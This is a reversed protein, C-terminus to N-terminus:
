KQYQIKIQIPNNSSIQGNLVMAVVQGTVPFVIIRWKIGTYEDIYDVIRTSTPKCNEGVTGIMYGGQTWPLNVNQNNTSIEIFMNITNGNQIVSNINNSTDINSALIFPCGQNCIGYTNAYNQGNSNLNNQAKSDADNQSINSIYSGQPITYTVPTGVLGTQCDNKLFTKSIEANIFINTSSLSNIYHYNYNKVIKNENDKIFILRNQNDYLYFEKIGSPYTINKLGILPDYTYTTVLYGEMRVDKRFNDLKNNLTAESIDDVDLNSADVISNILDQPIDSTNSNIDNPYTAGGEIKAIPSMKNYGWIFVVPKKDNTYQLVNGNSDYKDYIMRRNESTNIDLSQSNDKILVEHEEKPLLINGTSTDQSYKIAKEFVKKNNIFKEYKIPNDIRNSNILMQMESSQNGLLLDSPYYNKTEIIKGDDDTIKESSLQNKDNYNYHYQRTIENGNFYNIEKRSNLLIKGTKIPYFHMFNSNYDLVSSSTVTTPCYFTLPLYEAIYAWYRRQDKVIFDYAEKKVIEKTSFPGNGIIKYVSKEKLTGNRLYRIEPLGIPRSAYYTSYDSLNNFTYVEEGNSNDKNGYQIAVESYGVLSGQANYSYPVTPDSNLMLTRASYSYPSTSQSYINCSIESMNLVTPCNANNTPAYVDSDTRDKVRYFVPKTMLIGNKYSYKKESAKNGDTDFYTVNKIRLGAGKNPYSIEQETFYTIKMDVWASGLIGTKNDPYNVRMRYQAGPTILSTIDFDYVGCVGHAIGYNILDANNRSYESIIQWNGNVNKELLGYLRTDNPHVTLDAGLGSNSYPACANNTSTGLDCPGTSSCTLTISLKVSQNIISPITFTKSQEVTSNYDYISQSTEVLTSQITPSGFQNSEYDMLVHGGTPYIMLKLLGAKLFKENFSRNNPQPNSVFYFPINNDKYGLNNVNPILGANTAGNFFGWLDQAASTKYPLSADNYIFRYILDNYNTEGFKIATLKLRKSKYSELINNPMVGCTGMATSVVTYDGFTPSGIFYDYDFLITKIPQTDNKSYLFIKDVKKGNKIDERGSNQFVIKSNNTNIESITYDTGQSASYGSKLEQVLMLPPGSNSWSSNFPNSTSALVEKTYNQILHPLSEVQIPVYTFNAVKNQPSVIKTLYYSDRYQHQTTQCDTSSHTDITARLEFFYVLGDTTIAKFGVTNNASNIIRELKINNKDISIFNHNRDEIFKGTYGNFNYICMLFDSDTGVQFQKSEINGTSTTFNCGKRVYNFVFDSEYPDETQNIESSIPIYDKRFANYDQGVLHIVGGANLTWGLGINSAEEEVKLGTTYYSASIPIKLDGEDISYLPIESSATGNYINVPVEAYKLLSAINPSQITPVKQAFIGFYFFTFVTYLIKKIM